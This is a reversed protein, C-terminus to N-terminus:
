EELWPDLPTEKIRLTLIIALVTFVPYVVLVSLFFWDPLGMIYGVEPKTLGWWGIAYYILAFTLFFVISILMERFAMKFRPDEDFHEESKM